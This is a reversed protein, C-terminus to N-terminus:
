RTIRWICSLTTSTKLTQGNTHRLASDQLLWKISIFGSLSFVMCCYTCDCIM